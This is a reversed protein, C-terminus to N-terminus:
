YITKYFPYTSVRFKQNFYESLEEKKAEANEKDFTLYMPSSYGGHGYDYENYGEVGYVPINDFDPIDIERIHYPTDKTTLYSYDIIYKDIIDKDFSSCRVTIETGDIDDEYISIVQYLIM